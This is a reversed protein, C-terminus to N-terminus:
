GDSHIKLQGNLSSGFPSIASACSSNHNWLIWGYSPSSLPSYTALKPTYQFSSCPGDPVGLAISNIPKFNIHGKLNKVLSAECSQRSRVRQSGSLTRAPNVDSTDQSSDSAAVIPIRSVKFLWPFAPGGFYRTSRRKPTLLPDEM